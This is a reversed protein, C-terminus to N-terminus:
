TVMAKVERAYLNTGLWAVRHQLVNIDETRRLRHKRCLRISVATDCHWPCHVSVVPRVQRSRRQARAELLSMMTRMM